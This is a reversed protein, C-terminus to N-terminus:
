SGFGVDAKRTVRVNMIRYRESIWMVHVLEAGVDVLFM